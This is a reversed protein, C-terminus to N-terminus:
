IAALRFVPITRVGDTTAAYKGFNAYMAAMRAFLRDRDGCTTTRATFRGSRGNAFLECDPNKLLNHYWNPHGSQGYNSAVLIVDDGDTFYVLSVDHTAGSRAGTSRLMVLPATGFATSLRARTPGMLRRDIPAAVVRHFAGIPRVALLRGIARQMLTARKPDVRPIGNLLDNSV